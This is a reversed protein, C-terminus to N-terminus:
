GAHSAGNVPCKTLDMKQPSTPQWADYLDYDYAGEMEMLVGFNRRTARRAISIERWAISFSGTSLVIRQPIHHSMYHMGTREQGQVEGQGHVYYDYEEDYLEEQDPNWYPSEELASTSITHSSTSQYTNM